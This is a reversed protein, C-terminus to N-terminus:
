GAQKQQWLDCAKNALINAIETKAMLPLKETTGNALLISVVNTDHGFGAGQDLLSNLVIADANKRVLKQRASEMGRDSELAFGIIVQSAHKREGLSALIDETKELELYMTEGGYLPKKMKSDWVLKPRYDAVAAAMVAIDYGLHDMAALYMERASMVSVVQIRKDPLPIHVPGSILVVEHGLSVFAHALSYGMKGSSKNAIFRVPDIAEHTPGATILVKM